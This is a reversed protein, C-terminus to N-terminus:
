KARISLNHLSPCGSVLLGPCYILRRFAKEGLGANLAVNHGPYASKCIACSPSLVQRDESISKYFSNPVPLSPTLCRPICMGGTVCCM